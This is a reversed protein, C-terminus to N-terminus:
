RKLDSLLMVLDNAGCLLMAGLTATLILFYYEGTFKEFGRAYDRSLLLTFFTGALIILKFLFTFYNSVVIGFFAVFESKFDAVFLSITALVVGILSVYFTIDQKEKRQTFSLIATLIIFLTLITEPLISTTIDNIFNM